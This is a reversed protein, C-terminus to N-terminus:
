GYDGTGAHGAGDRRKEMERVTEESLDKLTNGKGPGGASGESMGGEAGGAADAESPPKEENDAM